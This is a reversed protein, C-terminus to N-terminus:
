RTIECFTQYHDETVFVLGDNSYLVRKLKKGYTYDNDAERWTRGTAHPLKAQNNLFEDGELNTTIYVKAYIINCKAFSILLKGEDRM